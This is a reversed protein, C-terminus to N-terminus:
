FYRFYCLYELDVVSILVGRNENQQTRKSLYMYYLSRIFAPPSSLDLNNYGLPSPNALM